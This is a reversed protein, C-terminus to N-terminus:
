PLSDGIGSRDAVTPLLLSVAMVDIRWRTWDCACGPRLFM